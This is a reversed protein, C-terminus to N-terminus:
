LYAVMEQQLLGAAIGRSLCRDIIDAGVFSFTWLGKGLMLQSGPTAWEQAYAEKVANWYVRIYGYKSGCSPLQSLVGYAETGRHHIETEGKSAPVEASSDGVLSGKDSCRYGFLDPERVQVEGLVMSFYPTVIKTGM